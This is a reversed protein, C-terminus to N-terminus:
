RLARAALFALLVAGVFMIQYFTADPLTLAWNAIDNPIEALDRFFNRTAQPNM